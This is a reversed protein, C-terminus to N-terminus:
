KRTIEVRELVVDENPRDNRNRDVNAIASIVDLNECKGFVSHRNDLHPTPVDTIFFQSGNTNPGSNAMSLIGASDHKLEANFEDEFRYGPGGMGVGLRDGGQIMFDPIVRHFITGDYFPEQKIQRDKPDEFKKLGKALGVFNAVTTPTQDEFLQCEINGKTTVFTAYLKGDGEISDLIAKPDEANLTVKEEDAADKDAADDAKQEDAKEEANADQAPAEQDAAANEQQAANDDSKKTCAVSMSLCLAAVLLTRFSTM